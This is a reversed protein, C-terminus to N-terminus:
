DRSYYDIWLNVLAVLRVCYRPATELRSIHEVCVNKKGPKGDRLSAAQIAFIAQIGRSYASRSGQFLHSNENVM